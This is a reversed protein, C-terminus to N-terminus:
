PEATPGEEGPALDATDRELREVGEEDGGVDLLERRREGDSRDLLV